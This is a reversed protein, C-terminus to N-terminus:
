LLWLMGCLEKVVNEVYQSIISLMIHRLVNSIYLYSFYIVDIYEKMKQMETKENIFSLIIIGAEQLCRLSHLM